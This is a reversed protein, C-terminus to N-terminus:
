RRLAAILEPLVAQPDAVLGLDAVSFISAAPNPHIAIVRRAGVMAANHVTDGLIGVAVYLEPAVEQATVGVQHAEDVWDSDRASRDGALEAGLVQALEAALALGNADRLGRGVALIARAKTLPRWAPPQHDVPGLDRCREVAPPLGSDTIEGSRGPDTTPAMLGTPDITALKVPSTVALDLFYDGGYVPHSGLLARTDPDIAVSGSVDTILGAKLRQALAAALPNHRAALLVFEPQQSALFTGPDQTVHVRDAGAAIAPAAADPHSVVAHVYCGLGDALRRAEGVLALEGPLLAGGTDGPLVAWVDAAVAASVDEGLLASLDAMDM